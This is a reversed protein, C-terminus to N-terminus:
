EAGYPEVLNTYFWVQAANVIGNPVKLQIMFQGPTLKTRHALGTYNLRYTM